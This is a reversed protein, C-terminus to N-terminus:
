SPLTSLSFWFPSSFGHGAALTCMAGQAAGLPRNLQAHDTATLCPTAPTASYKNTLLEHDDEDEENVPQARVDAQQGWPKNNTVRELPSTVSKRLMEVFRTQRTKSGSQQGSPLPSSPSVLESRAASGPQSSPQPSMPSVDSHATSAMSTSTPPAGTNSKSEVHRPPSLPIDDSTAGMNAPDYEHESDLPQYTSWPSFTSPLFDVGGDANGSGGAM